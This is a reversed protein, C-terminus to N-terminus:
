MMVSDVSLVDMRASATITPWFFVRAIAAHASRRPKEVDGLAIKAASKLALTHAQPQV